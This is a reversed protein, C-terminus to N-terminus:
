SLKFHAVEDVKGSKELLRILNKRTTETDPHKPGLVRERVELARRFLPEAGALDGKQSLIGALNNVSSLTDPHEPGLVRERTELTRRFLLEACVYDDKSALLGALDNMCVLTEPHEPGFVRESAALARRYLPEAAVNDNKSVLLMSLNNVSASTSPQEPVLNRECNELKQRCLATEDPNNDKWTLVSALNNIANAPAETHESMQIWENIELVRRYLPEAGAHDGRQILLEILNNLCLLTDLNEPGLFQERINLAERYLPEAIVFDGKRVMLEGLHDLSALTDSHGLGLVCKRADLARRYLPEANTYDGKRELLVALNNVSTLTDPHDPGIIRNRAELVRRYLPEAGAYDGLNSMCIAACDALCAADSLGNDIAQSAFSGLPAIEWRREWELWHEQLFAARSKVVSMLKAEISAISGAAHQRTVTQVLRHIRCLRPTQDDGAWEVVQLLRLGILHNVLTMWPDDYGPEADTGLELYNEAVVARLWPLPVSDPPVLAAASLTLMEPSTLMELTPTLTASLLKEAHNVAQTTNAAINDVGERKLRQLLASCTLRGKREGLHVAVVEVALTFGHLLCVIERAADCEEENPFRGQPQCSEILRLADDDPLEDVPLHCYRTEDMGIKAPDLRTTAVVHLWKRGSLLDTQPPQLLAPDDVNDLLLLARPTPPNSERACAFAGQV